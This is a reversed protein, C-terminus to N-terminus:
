WNVISPEVDLSIPNTPTYGSELLRNSYFPKVNDATSVTVHFLKGDKRETKGDVAVVLAQAKNDSAVGIVQVNNPRPPLRSDNPIGFDVTIHHMFHNSHVPLAIRKIQESKVLYCSYAM